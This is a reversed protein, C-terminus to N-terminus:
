DEKKPGVTREGILFEQVDGVTRLTTDQVKKATSETLDVVKGVLGGV